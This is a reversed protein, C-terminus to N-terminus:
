ERKRKCWNCAPNTCPVTRDGNHGCVWAVFDQWCDKHFWHEEDAADEHNETAGDKGCETCTKTM